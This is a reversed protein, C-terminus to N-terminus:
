DDDRNLISFDNDYNENIDNCMCDRFGCDPCSEDNSLALIGEKINEEENLSELITEGILKFFKIQDEVTAIQPKGDKVIFCIHDDDIPLPM